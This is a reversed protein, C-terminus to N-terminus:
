ELAFIHFNFESFFSIVQGHTTNFSARVCMSVRFWIFLCNDPSHTGGLLMEILNGLCM